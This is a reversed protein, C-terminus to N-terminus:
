NHTWVFLTGERVTRPRCPILAPDGGLTTFLLDADVDRALRWVHRQLDPPLRLAYLAEVGEYMDLDPDRVDDRVFSVDPPTERHVVDTARVSVGREALARAVTTRSGIGIEIVCDYEALVDVIAPPDPSAVAPYKHGVPILAM